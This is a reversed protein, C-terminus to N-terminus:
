GSYVCGRRFPGHKRRFKVNPRDLYFGADEMIQRVMHGTMQRAAHRAMLDPFHHSLRPSLPELAPRHLFSATAMITLNEKSQLWRWLRKADPTRSLTSFRDPRYTLTHTM